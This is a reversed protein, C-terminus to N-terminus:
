ILCDGDVSSLRSLIKLRHRLPVCSVRVLNGKKEKAAPFCLLAETYRYKRVSSRFPLIGIVFKGDKKRHEM